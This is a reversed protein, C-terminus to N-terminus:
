EEYIQALPIFASLNFDTGFGQLYSNRQTSLMDNETVATFHKHKIYLEIARMIYDHTIVLIQKKEKYKQLVEFLYDIRWYCQRLSECDNGERMAKVVSQNLLDINIAEFEKLFEPYVKQINFQVENLYPFTVVDAKRKYKEMIFKQIAEATAQCRNSPGCFIVEVQDFPLTKDRKEILDETLWKDITPDLSHTVLDRIIGSPIRGHGDYPFNLKSHRLFSIDPRYVSVIKEPECKLIEDKEIEECVIKKEKKRGRGVHPLPTLESHSFDVRFGDCPMNRQTNLLDFITVQSDRRGKVYLEVIRMFYPHSIVLINGKERHKDFMKFLYEVKWFAQSVPECWDSGLMAKFVREDIFDLSLTKYEEKFEPCIKDIRFQIENLLLLTIAEVKKGYENKVLDRAINATERCRQSEATFIVEIDNFPVSESREKILKYTGSKDISIVQNEPVFGFDHIILSPLIDLNDEPLNIKGRRIFYIYHAKQNM